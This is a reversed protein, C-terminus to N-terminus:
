MYEIEKSTDYKSIGLLVCLGKGISSIVEGDVPFLYIFAFLCILLFTKLSGVFTLTHLAFSYLQVMLLFISSNSFLYSPNLYVTMYYGATFLSRKYAIPNFSIPLHVM